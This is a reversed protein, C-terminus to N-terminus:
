SNEKGIAGLEHIYVDNFSTGFHDFRQNMGTRGTSIIVNRKEKLVYMTMIIATVGVSVNMMIIVNKKVYRM